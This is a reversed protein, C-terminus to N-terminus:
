NHWIPSTAPLPNITVSATTTISCEGNSISYTVTYTGATSAVLDIEGTSANISLGATSSYTGCAQGTRTVTATGTACYPTGAYEITATPLANITVSTTTTNSCTGDTFSYTVTYTGATSAVLDIEGTSADITLGATSSYTGGAQGTQTVTATGTACYPTGTYEIAATPLANVTVTMSVLTVCSNANTETLTLTYTGAILWDINTNYATPSEITWETGASGPSISWLFANGADGPVVYYNETSVCVTQEPDTNQAWLGATSVTLCLILILKLNRLNTKM